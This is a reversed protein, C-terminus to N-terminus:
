KAREIERHVQNMSKAWPELQQLPKSLTSVADRAVQITPYDQYTIIFWKTDNRLTPYIRVKNELDYEEIFSQVDELSTMASLQLTYARPSIAQLEERAFSFTIKKTPPTSETLDSEDDVTSAAEADAQSNAEVETNKKVAADIASTDASEAKDDLLADVVDSTIVVRQQDQEVEGVSATEEVVVPPLSSSDDDAGQYSIDTSAESDVVGEVGAQESDSDVEFTPIATQEIPAILSQAKDDPTPQSFMWWYGGGILLLLLAVVIAINIPSGIISRIIIRKEVKLEGLAMLEGPLPQAKNFARRVRTESEDDVYRIVLSGFFHEAEPQSLDDIELDIPKHQQGYSLRTLLTDLHGIESFLVINITWQPNAQAELVLMWLESVLLESLRHADDVVIVVSCPEGDLLRALSDSLSDHQNFLPDSVIQSLILARRQQDDQSPHCLLLCQNKETAWAELYRQALWSRGSGPKGAVTVLNSGFNTLLQLRELLEVQSELELVRLEHALSM